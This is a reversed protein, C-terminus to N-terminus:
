IPYFGLRSGDGFCDRIDQARYRVAACVETVGCRRLWLLSYEMLPRGLLPVLPKPREGTVAKLRTGDGGALVIAKM